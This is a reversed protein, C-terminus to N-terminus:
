PFFSVSFYLHHKTLCCFYFCRLCVLCFWLLRRSVVNGKHLHWRLVIQAASKGHKTALGLIVEDRLVSPKTADNPDLNAQNPCTPPHTFPHMPYTSPHTPPRVLPSYAVLAIGKSHLYARLEDQPLYPHCEVQNCVPKIRAIKLIEECEEENFNSLGITSVLGDEVAKELEQWTVVNSGELDYLHAGSEDKPWMTQADLFKTHTPWHILLQNIKPLKLERLIREVAPRVLEKRHCTNWVKSTVWVDDLSKISGDKIAQQIGEGVEEQNEYVQACDLHIYGM